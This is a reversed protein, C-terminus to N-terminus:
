KSISKPRHIEIEEHKLKVTQLLLIMHFIKDQESQNSQDLQYRIKKNLKTRIIKFSKFASELESEDIWFKSTLINKLKNNLEL